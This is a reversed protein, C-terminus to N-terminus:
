HGSMSLFGKKNAIAISAIVSGIGAAMVLASLPFEPVVNTGAVAVEHESHGYNIEFTTETQTNSTVIVENSDPSVAQGDVMVTMEGSLMAKPITVQTVGRTGTEGEVTFTVMKEDQELAVNDVNSNSAIEVNFTQQASGGGSSSGTQAQVEFSSESAVVFSAPTTSELKAVIQADLLGLISAEVELKSKASYTGQGASAPLEVNASYEGNSSVEAEQDAVVTGQSDFIRVTVTDSETEERMEGSVSGTVQVTDGPAYLHHEAQVTVSNNSDASVKSYATKYSIQSQASGEVSGSQAFVPVTFSFAVVGVALHMAITTNTKQGFM